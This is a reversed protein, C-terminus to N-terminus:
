PPLVFLHINEKGRKRRLNKEYWMFLRKLSLKLNLVLTPENNACLKQRKQIKWFQQKAKKPCTKVHMKFYVDDDSTLQAKVCQYCKPTTACWKTYIMIGCFCFESLCVHRNFHEDLSMKQSIFESLIGKKWEKETKILVEELYYDVQFNELM